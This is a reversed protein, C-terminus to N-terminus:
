LVGIRAFVDALASPAAAVKLQQRLRDVPFPAVSAVAEGVGLAFGALDASAATVRFWAVGEGRVCYDADIREHLDSLNAVHGGVVHQSGDGACRGAVEEDNLEAAAVEGILGRASRDPQHVAGPRVQGFIFGRGREEIM